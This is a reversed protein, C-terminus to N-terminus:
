NIKVHEGRGGEWIKRRRNKREMQKEKKNEKILIRVV